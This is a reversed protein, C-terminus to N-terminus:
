FDITSSKPNLKMKKLVQLAADEITNLIHAESTSFIDNVLVPKNQLENISCIQIHSIYHAHNAIKFKKSCKTQLFSLM